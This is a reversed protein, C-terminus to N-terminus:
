KWDSRGDIVNLVSVDSGDDSIEYVLIYPTGSVVLERTGAIEGARGLEPHEELHVAIGFL